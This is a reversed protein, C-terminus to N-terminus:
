SKKFSRQAYVNEKSLGNWHKVRLDEDCQMKTSVGVGLFTTPRFPFSGKKEIQLQNQYIIM